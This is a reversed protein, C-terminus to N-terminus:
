KIEKVIYFVSKDNNAEVGYGLRTLIWGFWFWIIKRLKHSM